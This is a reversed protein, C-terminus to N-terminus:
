RIIKYVERWSVIRLLAGVPQELREITSDYEQIYVERKYGGVGRRREGVTVAQRAKSVLQYSEAAPQLASAGASGGGQARVYRAFIRGTESLGECPNVSEISGALTSFYVISDSIVPDAWVKQGIPLEGAKQAVPLGLETENGIYWEVTPSSGDQLAVFAYFRNSPARDDGGSGFYVRIPQGGTAPDAWVAPKSLIPYHMRDTYLTTLVWSAPNSSTVEMKYLRGDLDGVYVRDTYGDHDVDVAVPSGPIAVYIDTYRNPHSTSNTNVNAVTVTRLLAGTDARVAYFRNGVVRAPDNDYGSGMFAVWRDATGQRAKGIAPVSWTEGLYNQTFEWLPKPDALDTIDLAFYYNIGTAATSGKGPGQGTILVTKWSSGIMIDAVTPTGDVYSGGQFYREGSHSDKQSMNRLKRLLNFPIFGWVEAGTALDFCHLMGDNAGLIVVPDRNAQADRFAEYGSGMVAPDGSPPGVIIPSSHQIDALKWSRGEGRIFNILGANDGNVDMLFTRLVNVNATTFPIRTLAGTGGPRYAAYITRSGPSRSALLEGADWLVEGGPAVYRGSPSGSDARTVLSLVSGPSSSLSVRTVDYARLHGEWGPFVFTASLLLDRPEGSLDIHGAAASTRSYERRAVYVYELRLLDLVPTEFSAATFDAMADEEAQIVAKWRLKSGFYHFTHWPLNTLNRIDAGASQAYFEWTQGDTNSVYYDVTLGTSSGGMVRQDLASFRVRTIAYENERLDPTLDLSLATGNLNYVDALVNVFVYYYQTHNGDAIMFDYDGDHDYDFIIGLDFDYVEPSKTPGSFVLDQTFGAASNRFYFVMGGYGTGAGTNAPYNWNDTGVILDFDGDMDFDGALSVTAAGDYLDNALIHDPDSYSEFFTMHGNGDNQYYQLADYSVSGVIIDLSGTGDFDAVSVTSVGRMTWGTTFLPEPEILFTQGDIVGSGTNTAQLVEGDKNGTILDIDGDLDFDLSVMMTSSWAIGKIAASWSSTLDTQVFGVVGTQVGGSIFTNRYLWIRKPALSGSTTSTIFFFDFDGDGDYDGSTMGCHGETDLAAGGVGRIPWGSPDGQSGDIWLAVEFTGVQGLGGLNRVYALANSYSSSSGIYDPWGDLDFDATAVTNIWAPVYNPNTLNFNAGLRNLTAYDRPFHPDLCWYKVSSGAEDIHSLEAFSETVVGTTEVCAPVDSRAQFVFVGLVAWAAAWGFANRKLARRLIMTM